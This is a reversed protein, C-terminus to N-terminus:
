AAQVGAMLRLLKDQTADAAPMEGAIRGGRMVLIRDALNLLEPLESSILWVALGQDALDRIQGHIEAKAGVDVGRTPEDLILVGCEAALWRALVLKQQNGGSLTAAPAELGATRIALRRVYGEALDREAGRRVWGLTSLRELISLTINAGAGLGPVLGHRKRDEPVLGLGAAMATRPSGCRVERGHRFVRGAALRDLGFVTEAVETRGSGVLGAFGLIEGARLSFSIGEFAGPRSLNEVRLREPGPTRPGTRRAPGDLTRGIMLEVLESETCGAAPRTAVVRGDRLVTLTDCLELVDALRHSVYIVTAGQGRLSRILAHLREAERQSLSSTPEDFILIRAGRSVAAAIQVLQQQGIALEGLVRDPALDAGIRELAERARQRMLGRRLWGQRAPLAELCLNEAVTLNECFLLEQHVMGIGADLADRPGAFRVPHGDVRLAGTDPRHLGALIKGLTSKGAGNEGVLAHCAGRAIALSVDTLAQVGPFRKGIGHFEIIPDATM